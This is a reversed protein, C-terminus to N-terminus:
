SRSLLKNRALEHISILTDGKDRRSMTQGIGIPALRMKDTKQKDTTTTSHTEVASTNTIPVLEHALHTHGLTHTDTHSLFKRYTDMHTHTHTHIHSRM